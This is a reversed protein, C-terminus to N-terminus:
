SYQSAVGAGGVGAVLHHSLEITKELLRSRYLVPMGSPNESMESLMKVVSCDDEFNQFSQDNLGM